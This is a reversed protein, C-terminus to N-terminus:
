VQSRPQATFYTESRSPPSAEFTWFGVWPRPHPNKLDKRCPTMPLSSWIGGVSTPPNNLDKGCTTRLSCCRSSFATEHPRPHALAQDHHLLCRRKSSTIYDRQRCKNNVGSRMAGWPQRTDVVQFKRM